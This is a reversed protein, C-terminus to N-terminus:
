APVWARRGEEDPEGLCFHRVTSAVWRVAVLRRTTYPNHFVDLRPRDDTGSYLIAVASVARNHDPTTKRKPGFQIGLLRWKRGAIQPPAIQVVELGFMAAQVHYPRAHFDLGTNDHVVLLGPLLGKTTARLQGAGSAIASRVRQGPEGGFAVVLGAARRKAISREEPTADFQKIEAVLL